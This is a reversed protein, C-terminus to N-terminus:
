APTDPPLCTEFWDAAQRAVAELTGPEEFLHTAGPVVSLRHPCHMLAAAQRNLELVEEDRSGVLLLTPCDVRALDEPGALDPRGGTLLSVLVFNNFNFAFASILLPTLPKLILPLTIRRFNTWPGAGVVASAEYLDAPISQILGSCLVASSTRRRAWEWCAKWCRPTPRAEASRPWRRDRRM